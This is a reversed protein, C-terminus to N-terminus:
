PRSRGEPGSRLREILTSLTNIQTEAADRMSYARGLAARAAFIADNARDAAPTEHRRPMVVDRRGLDESRKM